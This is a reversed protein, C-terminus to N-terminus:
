HSSLTWSSGSNPLYTHTCQRSTETFVQLDLFYDWHDNVLKLLTIDVTQNLIEILGNSQSIFVRLAHLM